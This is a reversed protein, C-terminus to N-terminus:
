KLDLLIMDEAMKEQAALIAAKVEQNLSDNSLPVLSDESRKKNQYLRHDRIYCEVDPPVLDNISRGESLRQRVASSSIDIEPIPLLYIVGEGKGIELDLDAEGVERFVESFGPGLVDRAADLRFSPRSLVIFSCQDLIKEYHKWTQIELFADIGLLFFLEAKPHTKKIKGLTVISYSTDGAELEIPSAEFGPINQVALEVMRFRHEAKEIDGTDKHPPIFSPIFLIRDLATREKVSLAAGVHGNHIPNFTGGLLGIRESLNKKKM